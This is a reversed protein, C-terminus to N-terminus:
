SHFFVPCKTGMLSIGQHTGRADRGGVWGVVPSAGWSQSHTVGQPGTHM